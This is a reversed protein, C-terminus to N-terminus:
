LRTYPRNQRMYHKWAGSSYFTVSPGNVVGFPMYNKKAQYKWVMVRITRVVDFPLNPFHQQLFCEAYNEFEEEATLWNRFEGCLTQAFEQWEEEETRWNSFELLWSDM